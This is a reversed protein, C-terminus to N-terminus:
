ARHPTRPKLVAKSHGDHNVSTAWPPASAGCELSGSARLARMLEVEGTLLGAQRAIESPSDPSEILDFISRQPTHVTGEGAEPAALKAEAAACAREIRAVCEDATARLDAMLRAASEELVRLDAPTLRESKAAQARGTRLMWRLGRWTAWGMGILALVSLLTEM